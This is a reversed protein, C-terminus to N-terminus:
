KRKMFAPKKNKFKGVIEGVDGDVCSYIDGDNENTTFYTINKIVIEYVEEEEEQEEVQKEEEQEVEEQEEEEVQEEQEEEEEQEVEEQEEVESASVEEEESASVEEEEEEKQEEEEEEQEEEEEEQEEEQEDEEEEEEQEEEEVESASVEEEESASVEEEQDASESEESEESEESNESDEEQAEEEEEEGESDSSLIKNANKTFPNDDHSDIQFYSHMVMPSSQPSLEDIKLQIPESHSNPHELMELQSILEQNQIYLERVFPIQLIADHTSKYLEYDKLAGDLSKKINNQISATVDNLISSIDFRVGHVNVIKHQEENNM